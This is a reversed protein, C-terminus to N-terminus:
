ARLPSLGAREILLRALRQHHSFLSTFHVLGRNGRVAYVTLPGPLVDVKRIDAFSFRRTRVMGRYTLGDADVVIRTRGYYTVSVAFFLVFFVASLFTQVPVGDFRLLFLLVGLWLLTAAGMVAALVAHPRFVQKGAKSDGPNM